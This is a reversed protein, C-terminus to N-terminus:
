KDWGLIGLVVDPWAVVAVGVVGMSGNFVLAGWGTIYGSPARGEWGYPVGKGSLQSFVAGVLISVGFARMGARDSVFLWIAVVAVFSLVGIAGFVPSHPHNDTAM